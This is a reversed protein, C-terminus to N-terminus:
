HNILKKNNIPHYALSLMFAIVIINIKGLIFTHTSNAFILLIMFISLLKFKQKLLSYRFIRILVSILITILITFPIIGSEGLITIFFNHSGYRLGELQHFKTLGHGMFSNDVIRKISEDLLFTRYTTTQSNIEGELVFSTYQNIRKNQVDSLNSLVGSFSLLFYVFSVSLFLKFSNPILTRNSSFLYIAVVILMNLYNTKSFSLFISFIFFLSILYYSYNKLNDKNYLLIIFGFVSLFASDNPNLVTSTFRDIDEFIFYNVVVLISHIFIIMILIREIFWSDRYNRFIENFKIDAVLLLLISPLYSRLSLLIDNDNLNTLSFYGGFILYLILFFIFNITSRSFIYTKNEFLIFVCFFLTIYSIISSIGYFVALFDNIGSLIIILLVIFYKHKM